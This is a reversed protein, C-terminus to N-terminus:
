MFCLMHINEDGFHRVGLNQLVIAAVVCDILTCTKITDTGSVLSRFM